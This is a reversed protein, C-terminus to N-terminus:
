DTRAALARELEDRSSIALKAYTSTLHGEVTRLTVFLSQAIERNALGDAALQAVRRESPTLADRGSLANRRPRAGTAILEERARAGLRLAGCRDAVDLGRRLPERADRRHGARRLAAGLETESRAHEYRAPANEVVAASERLLEIGDDGGTIVGLTRLAFSLASPTGWARARVLEERALVGAAELEGLRHHALARYALSPIGATHLGSREDRHHLNEFDDLAGRADGNALRLQGRAVLLMGALAYGTVDGDIGHDRLFAASTAPDARETMAHVLASLLMSRAFTQPGVAAVDPGTAAFASQAEAEVEIFRGQRV